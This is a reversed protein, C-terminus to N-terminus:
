SFVGGMTFSNKGHEGVNGKFTDSLRYILGDQMGCGIHDLPYRNGIVTTVVKQIQHLLLCKSTKFLDLFMPIGSFRSIEINLSVGQKHIEPPIGLESNNQTWWDHSNQM